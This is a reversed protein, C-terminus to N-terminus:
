LTLIVLKQDHREFMYQTDDTKYIVGSGWVTPMAWSFPWLHLFLLNKTMGRLCTSLTMPRTFWWPVGFSHAIAWLFPWLCLFSSNQSMGRLCTTHWPGQLDGWFGLVTPLLEHFHGLFTFVVLKQDHREFMYQTGHAMYIGRGMVGFYHAIAWLFPWLYLFSSNKTMGILGISLTMPRWFWGPFGL